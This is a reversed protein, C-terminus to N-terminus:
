SGIKGDGMLISVGIIFYLVVFGIISILVVVVSRLAKV